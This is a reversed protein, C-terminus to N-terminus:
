PLKQPQCIRTGNSFISVTDANPSSADMNVVIAITSAKTFKQNTKVRKKGHVFFGDNDFYVSDEESLLPSGGLGLGIRVTNKSSEGKEGKGKAKGSANSNGQELVKVEFMYRGAKIGTNGRVSALLHQFGNDRLSSM